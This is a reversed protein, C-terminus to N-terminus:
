TNWRYKSAYHWSEILRRFLSGLIHPFKQIPNTDPEGTAGFNLTVEKQSPKTEVWSRQLNAYADVFDTLTLVLLYTIM